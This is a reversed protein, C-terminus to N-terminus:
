FMDTHAKMKGYLMEGVLKSYDHYKIYFVSCNEKCIGISRVM